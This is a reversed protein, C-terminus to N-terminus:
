GQIDKLKPLDFVKTMASGGEEETRFRVLNKTIESWKSMCEYKKEVIKLLDPDDAEYYGFLMNDINWITYNHVGAEEFMKVMDPWINDHLEKYEDYKGPLLEAYWAKKM